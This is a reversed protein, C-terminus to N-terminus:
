NAINNNEDRLIQVAIDENSIFANHNTKLEVAMITRPPTGITMNQHIDQQNTKTRVNAHKNSISTYSIHLRQISYCTEIRSNAITLWEHNYLFLKRTSFVSQHLWNLIHIVDNYLPRDYAVDHTNQQLRKSHYYKTIIDFSM